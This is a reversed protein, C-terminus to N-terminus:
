PSDWRSSTKQNNENKRKKMQRDNEGGGYEDDESDDCEYDNKYGGGYIIDNESDLERKKFKETISNMNVIQSTVRKKPLHRGM